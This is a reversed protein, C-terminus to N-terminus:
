YIHEWHHLRSQLPAEVSGMYGFFLLVMETKELRSSVLHSPCSLGVLGPSAARADSRSSTDKEPPWDGAAAAAVRTGAQSHEM